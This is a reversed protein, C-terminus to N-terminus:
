GKEFRTIGEETVLMDLAIDTESQPVFDLRQAEFAFGILLPPPVIAAITMDYFGKGYGLRAGRKDVGALPVVIRTPVMEPADPPPIKTGFGAPMLEAHTDWLRFVLAQGAGVIVPLGIDHGQARLALILERTDIEDGIPWFLAVKAKQGLEVQELFNATARASAKARVEKALGARRALVQQRLLQKQKVLNTFDATNQSLNTESKVPVARDQRPGSWQPKLNPL